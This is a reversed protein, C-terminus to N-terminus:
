AASPMRAGHVTLNSCTIVSLLPTHVRGGDAFAEQEKFFM